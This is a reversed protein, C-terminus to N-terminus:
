YLLADMLVLAAVVGPLTTRFAVVPSMTRFLMLAPLPLTSTLASPPRIVSPLSAVKFMVAAPRIRDVGGLSLLTPLLASARSILTVVTAAWDPWPTNRLSASAMVMPLRVMLPLRMSAVPATTPVVGADDVAVTAPILEVALPWRTKAAAPFKVTLLATLALPLPLTSSDVLVPLRATFALTDVPVPWMLKSLEAPAMLWPVAAMLVSPPVMSM